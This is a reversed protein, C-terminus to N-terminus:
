PGGGRGISNLLADSHTTCAASESYLCHSLSFTPVASAFYSLWASIFTTVCTHHSFTRDQTKINRNQVSWKLTVALKRTNRHLSLFHKRIESESMFLSHECKNLLVFPEGHQQTTKMSCLSLEVWSLNRCYINSMTDSVDGTLEKRLFLLKSSSPQSASIEEAWPHRHVLIIDTLSQANELIFVTPLLHPHPPPSM